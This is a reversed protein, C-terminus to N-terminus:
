NVFVISNFSEYLIHKTIKQLESLKNIYKIQFNLNWLYIVHDSNQFLYHAVQTYLLLFLCKQMFSM